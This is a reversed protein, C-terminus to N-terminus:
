LLHSGHSQHRADPEQRLRYAGLSGLYFYRRVLHLRDTWPWRHSPTNDDRSVLPLWLILGSVFSRISCGAIVGALILSAIRLGLQAVTWSPMRYDRYEPKKYSPSTSFKREYTESPRSPVPRPTANTIRSRRGGSPSRETTSMDALEISGRARHFTRLIVNLTLISFEL